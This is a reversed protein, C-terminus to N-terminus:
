RKLVFLNITDMEVGESTRCSKHKYSITASTYSAGGKGEWIVIFVNCNSETVFRSSEEKGCSTM